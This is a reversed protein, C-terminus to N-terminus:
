GDEGKISFWVICLLLAFLLALASGLSM